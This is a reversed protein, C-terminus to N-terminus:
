AKKSGIYLGTADQGAELKLRIPETSYSFGGPLVRRVRYIGPKLDDFGFRGQADTKTLREGLDLRDNANSDLFITKGVSVTDSSKADYKGNSNTDGFAVGRISGPANSPAAKRATTGQLTMISQAPLSLTAVGNELRVIRMRRWAAGETSLYGSSLREIRLGSLNLQVSRRKDTANILVSTLTRNKDHSFASVYVGEPNTANTALRVAGPRVYRFFHKTAVYKNAKSNTGNTLAEDAKTGPASSIGWFVWASANGYVLADQINKALRMASPWTQSGGSIETMWSPKNDKEIGKWTPQGSRGNWYQDWMAPSRQPTIGDNAYGHIAYGWIAEYAERDARLAKIYDMQRALIYPDKESGVGVDEPGLLKTKIHEKRFWRSVAKVANVYLEPTYVCSHYPEHFALENQISIAYLPVGYAREFGKVYAAVYRGFQTLNADTNILSGGSANVAGGFSTYDLKPMIGNPKGSYPSLEPGKMWHPPSWISGIIKVEDLKRKLSGKAFNGFQEISNAGFDFKRINKNIDPGLVVPTALNGDDAKLISFSLQTRFISSGLDEYYLDQLQWSDTLKMPTYGGLSTGFGDITQFKESADVNVDVALM